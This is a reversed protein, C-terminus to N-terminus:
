EGRSTEEDLYTALVSLSAQRVVDDIEQEDLGKLATKVAHDTRLSSIAGELAQEVASAVVRPGAVRYLADVTAAAGEQEYMARVSISAEVELSDGLLDEQAALVAIPAGVALDYDQVAIVQGAARGSSWLVSATRNLYDTDLVRGSDSLSPGHPSDPGTYLVQDGNSIM